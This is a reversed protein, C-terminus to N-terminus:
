HRLDKIIKSKDVLAQLEDITINEDVDFMLPYTKGSDTQFIKTKKNINM